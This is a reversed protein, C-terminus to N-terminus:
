SEDDVGGPSSDPEAVSPISFGPEEVTEEEAEERGDASDGTGDVADMADDVAMQFNWGGTERESEETGEEAEEPERDEGADAAEVGTEPERGAEASRLLDLCWLRRVTRDVVEGSEGLSRRVTTLREGRDFEELLSREPGTLLGPDIRSTWRPDAALRRPLQGDAVVEDIGNQRLMSVLLADVNLELGRVPWTQGGDRPVEIFAFTGTETRCMATLLRRSREERAERLQREVVAGDRQLKLELSEGRLEGVLQHYQRYQADDLAGQDRLIDVLLGDTNEGLSDIEHLTAEEVYVVYSQDDFGVELRGRLGRQRITHLLELVSMTELRGSFGEVPPIRRLEEFVGEMGERMMAGLIRQLRDARDAPRATLGLRDWHEAVLSAVQHAGSVDTSGSRGLSSVATKGTRATPEPGSPLPTEPRAPASSESVEQRDEQADPTETPVVGGTLEDSELDRRTADGIRVGGIERRDDEGEVEEIELIMSASGDLEVVDVLEETTQRQTTKEADSSVQEDEPEVGGPIEVTPRERIEDDAEIPPPIEADDDSRDDGEIGLVERCVGLLRQADFPRTVWPRDTHLQRSSEVGCVIVPLQRGECHRIWRGASEIGSDVDVVVLRAREAGPPPGQLRRVEFGGAAELFAGMRERVTDNGCLVAVTNSAERTM